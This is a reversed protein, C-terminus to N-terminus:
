WLGTDTYTPLPLHLTLGLSKLLGIYFQFTPLDVLM